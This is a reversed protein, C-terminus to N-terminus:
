IGNRFGGFVFDADIGVLGYARGTQATGIGIEDAVFRSAARLIFPESSVVGVVSGNEREGAQYSTRHVISGANEIHRQFEM